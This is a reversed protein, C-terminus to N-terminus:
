ARGQKIKMYRQKYKNVPKSPEYRTNWAAIAEKDHGIDFPEGSAECHACEVFVSARNRGYAEVLYPEGGCFPCPKLEQM